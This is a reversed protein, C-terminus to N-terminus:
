NGSREGNQGSWKDGRFRHRGEEEASGEAERQATYGWEAALDSGQVEDVGGKAGGGGM